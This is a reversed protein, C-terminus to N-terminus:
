RRETSGPITVLRPPADMTVTLPDALPVVDLGDPADVSTTSTWGVTLEDYGLVLPHYHPALSGAVVPEHAGQYRFDASIRLIETRNPKAGHVTLSHFVLVDGAAFDSTAWAPNEDDALVGIGGIAGVAQRRALGGTHSGALVRLGGVDDPCDGLPMWATLVDPSGQILPFDQHAPTIRGPGDGPLAVRAIKRPHVLVPPGILAEALSTLAPHHALEHFSQLRQLQGYMEVFEASDGHEPVARPGVRAEMAPSPEALWGLRALMATIDSRVALVDSRDLLGPLFLYGEEDLRDRLGEPDGILDSAQRLQRM